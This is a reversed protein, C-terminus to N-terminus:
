ESTTFTVCLPKLNNKQILFPKMAIIWIFQCTVPVTFWWCRLAQWGILLFTCRQHDTSCHREVSLKLEHKYVVIKFKLSQITQNQISILKRHRYFCKFFRRRRYELFFLCWNITGYPSNGPETRMTRGTYRARCFIGAKIDCFIDLIQHSTSNVM